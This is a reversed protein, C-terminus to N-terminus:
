HLFRKIVNALVENDPHAKQAERWTRAADDQRGLMWLVEGLHAAIEPDARISLARQLYSAAGKLDGKRYLVWGMSDLIFPDDPAFSLAKVILQHAEDLRENRDALSYGLANYAHAHDPKIQILKRLNGELIDHRGIREALLASEYLLEPQNPQAALGADLLEFADPTRGAERLLQAEALMLQVRERNSGVPVLQLHRRAEDLRGQQSLVQAFRIQAALYHEGATVSGYWRLAEDPRKTNEAIQGLYLRVTNPDSFEIQALRRFNAEAVAYDQLQFSLVAVAFIVDTNNPFDALLAQFENRAQEYQKEGTLLRAYLLRAERAQPHGALYDRLVAIAEGPHSRALAQAKVLVAHDWDPRAKLAEDAERVAKEEDGASQAAQARAFRAEPYALYPETLKDILRQVTRRDPHRAFLRNLRLLAEPLREADYGLLKAAHPSIEDFRAQTALMGVLVQRAQQSEPDIEVWLRASELAADPQRAFHAIEASRRAIRPDRTTKALDLYASVALQINGRQVAVEALLLQYMIQPSLELNPLPEARPGPEEETAVVQDPTVAPQGAPVQACGGAFLALLAAAAGPVKSFIDSM